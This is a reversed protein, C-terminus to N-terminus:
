SKYIKVKKLVRMMDKFIKYKNIQQKLFYNILIYIKNINWIKNKNIQTRSNFIKFGKKYQNKQKQKIKM